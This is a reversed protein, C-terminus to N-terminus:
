VMLAFISEETASVRDTLLNARDKLAEIDNVGQEQKTKETLIQAINIEASRAFSRDNVDICDPPIFGEQVIWRVGKDYITYGTESITYTLIM